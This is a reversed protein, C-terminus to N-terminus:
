DGGPNGKLVERGHTGKWGEGGIKRRETDGVFTEM